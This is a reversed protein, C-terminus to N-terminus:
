EVVKREGWACFKDPTTGHEEIWRDCVYGNPNAEVMHRCEYCRVAKKMSAQANWGAVWGKCWENVLKKKM